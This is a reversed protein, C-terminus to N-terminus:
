SQFLKRGWVLVQFGYIGLWYVLAAFSLIGLATYPKVSQLNINLFEYSVFDGVVFIAHITFLIFLVQLLKRHYVVKKAEGRKRVQKWKQKVYRYAFYLYAYFTTLYFFQELGGFFPNYFPRQGLKTKYEVATFFVIVFFLFQTVPLIFHKLDTWRLRYEPYLNLKVHFFLLTPFSLTYYVPLFYWRPHQSFFNTISLIHHFLTLGFALLLLGYFINARKGGSRKLFFLSGIGMAQLVGIVLVFLLLYYFVSHDDPLKLRNMFPAPM